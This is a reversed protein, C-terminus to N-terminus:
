KLLFKLIGSMILQRQQREKICEFPFGMALSKSDNGDYAVAASMGNSYQMACYAPSVPNIADVDPCAYHTDNYLNYIDFEMGLGKVTETSDKLSGQYNAKLTNSVFSAEETNQIDSGIYAGSAMLRGKRNMYEALKARMSPTFTKYRALSHGDDKQLGLIIDVCDYDSLNVFGNEVAEHSCSCVNYKGIDAIALAHTQAHRFENGMFFHGALEDGGFGLANAGEDATLRKDFQTQLGNWGTVLNREVGIDKGLDFGQTSDTNIVAPSSLRDFSDIILVKKANPASRYVSLTQTPFSEGGRNVATVKFSYTKGQEIELECVTTRVIQGNDFGGDDVATYVNYATPTATPESEDTAPLWSLKVKNGSKLKARFNNPALPQVICPKGHQQSIFRLITKYISRALTFKFNPDHGFRMDAFNQHSMTEIIASPVEPLRTESYNRDYISRQTWTKYKLRIDKTINAALANAFDKSMQRSVGSNLKGGNFNTTCIPLTGIIGGNASRGADSHIALSLEIPVGKGEISPMYVSGGGLWNTMLSRTNIDDSYDDTGGKGDYVSSPAGSWQASYRAGELCRPLGSAVGGRQINGMGGGFRIADTSVYGKDTSYNSVIVCNSSNCGEDFEFTGLYAWTSGGMRQNVHIITQVGKHYVFYEANAISGRLTQYSAYVAYKGSKPFSPQYIVYSTKSEKTTAKAMIASGARFPNEGNYYTGRHFAFGKDPATEWQEKNCIIEFRSNASYDNDVIIEQTQYDRERPTFVNAGANELMPILYPVVITQTFLDETTGFLSPRQWKWKGKGTDYYRGHSAWLSLHHGSLGHTINYPRSINNTWPEGDYNIDGWMNPSESDSYRADPTLADITLGNTTISIRYKNYPKPLRKSLRKYIKRVKAATFDQTAFASSATIGISKTEEDIVCSVMNANGIIDPNSATYDAFYATIAEEAEEKPAKKQGYAAALCFWAVALFLTKHITKATSMARRHQFM